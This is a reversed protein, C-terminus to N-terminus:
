RFKQHKSGIYQAASEMKKQESHASEIAFLIEVHKSDIIKIATELDFKVRNKTKEIRKVLFCDFFYFCPGCECVFESFFLDCKRGLRVCRSYVIDNSAVFCSKGFDNPNATVCGFCFYMAFVNKEAIVKVVLFRTKYRKNVM